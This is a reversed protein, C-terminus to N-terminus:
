IRKYNFLLCRLPWLAVNRLNLFNHLLKAESTGSKREIRGMNIVNILFMGIHPILAHKVHVGRHKDGCTTKRTRYIASLLRVWQM